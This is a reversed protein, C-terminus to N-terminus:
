FVVQLEIVKKMENMLFPFIYKLFIVKEEIFFDSLAKENQVYFYFIKVKNIPLYIQRGKRQINSIDLKYKLKQDFFSYEIFYNKKLDIEEPLENLSQLYVMMRYRILPKQLESTSFRRMTNSATVKEINNMLKEVSCDNTSTGFFNQSTSANLPCDKMEESIQIGIIKSFKV